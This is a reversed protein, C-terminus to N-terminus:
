RRIIRRDNFYCVKTKCFHDIAKSEELDNDRKEKSPRRFKEGLCHTTCWAIKGGLNDRLAAIFAIAMEDVAPADSNNYEGHSNEEDRPKGWEDRKDLNVLELGKMSSSVWRSM